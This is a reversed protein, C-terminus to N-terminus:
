IYRHVKQFETLIQSSNEVIYSYIINAIKQNGSDVAKALSTALLPLINSIQYNKLLSKCKTDNNDDVSKDLNFKLIDDIHSTEQLYPSLKDDTKTQEQNTKRKLQIIKDKSEPQDSARTAEDPIKRTSEIAELAFLNECNKLAVASINDGASYSSKDFKRCETEPLDFQWKKDDPLTKTNGSRELQYSLNGISTNEDILLDCNSKEIKVM